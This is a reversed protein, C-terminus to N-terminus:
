TDSRPFTQVRRGRSAVSLSEPPKGSPRCDVSEGRRQTFPDFKRENEGGGRPPQRNREPSPRCRGPAPPTRRSGRRMETTEAVVPRAAEEKGVIEANLYIQM